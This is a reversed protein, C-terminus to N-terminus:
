KVEAGERVLGVGDAIIQDGEALGSTVVYNRGDNVSMIEVMCAKAKGDVVKYVFTKDQLEYTSTQPIVLRDHLTLTVVVSGTGGSRLLGTPNDFLARATVAGTSTDIIGSIADMHGVQPFISGDSLRFKIEEAAELPNRDKDGAAMKSAFLYENETLSFYAYVKSSDSVTVLPSTMSTGVLAGVRIPSMGLYGNAPSVIETHALDDAAKDLEAKCRALAAKDIEYKNVSTKQEYVSVAHRAILALNNDMLLKSSALKAEASDVNAKAIDYSAKYSTRDIRFLPQDREVHQGEEFLIETIRGSVQPYIDVDHIGKLTAPFDHEVSMDGKKITFVKYGSATKTIGDAEGAASAPAEGEALAPLALAALLAAGATTLRKHHKPM